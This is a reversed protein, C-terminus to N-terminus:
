TRSGSTVEVDEKNRQQWKWTRMEHMLFAVLLHTAGASKEQNTSKKELIANAQSHGTQSRRREATLFYNCYPKACTIGMRGMGLVIWYSYYYHFANTTIELCLLSEAAEKKSSISNVHLSLLVPLLVATIFIIRPGGTM